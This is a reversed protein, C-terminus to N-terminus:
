IADGVARPGRYQSLDFAAIRGVRDFAADARGHDPVSLFSPHELGTAGDNFWGAAIGADQAFIPLAFSIVLGVLIVVARIKM